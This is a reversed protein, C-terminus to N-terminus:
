TGASAPADANESEGRAMITTVALDATVNGITRWIDPLVELPLLLPLIEIPVGLAVSIPVIVVFFTVTSAVGVVALSGVVGIAAGIAIQGWSPVIGNLHAVFLVVALNGAPSTMRFLSVALPLVLATTRRPLGLPGQTSEIMAPLSALSSQTSLAVAQPPLFARVLRGPAVRGFIMAAPYTILLMQAILVASIVVVYHLAGGAVGFGTHYGVGIALAFVGLPALFLVWGVITMMISGITEVFGLLPERRTADLKAAAFAFVMGFTVIPLMDGAALASFINSPVVGMITELAGPVPPVRGGAAASRLATAVGADVPWMWLLFETAIAAFTVGAVLMGGFWCLARVTVRGGRAADATSAVGTILLALVLPIITMRLGSMWLLGLPAVGAVFREGSASHPLVAGVILGTVLGALIRLTGSM